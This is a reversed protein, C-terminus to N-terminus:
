RPSVKAKWRSRRLWAITLGLALANGLPFGWWLAHLGMSTYDALVFSIPLQLGWQMILSLAMAQFTQGAGRFAGALVQQAGIVGFAPAVVEVFTAALGSVAADTPVLVRALAGAFPM